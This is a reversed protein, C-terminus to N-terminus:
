DIKHIPKYGLDRNDPINEVNIRKSIPKLHCVEQFGDNRFEYLSRDKFEEESWRFKDASDTKDANKAIYSKGDIRVIEWSEWPNKTFESIKKDLLKVSDSAYSATDAVRLWILTSGCGAGSDHRLKLIKETKGDRDIDVTYIKEIVDYKPVDKEIYDAAKQGDEPKDGPLDFEDNAFKECVSARNWETVRWGDLRNSFRCLIYSGQDTVARLDSNIDNTILTFPFSSKLIKDHRGMGYGNDSNNLVQMFELEPQEDDSIRAIGSSQCSGGNSRVLFKESKSQDKTLPPSYCVAKTLVPTKNWHMEYFECANMDASKVQQYSQPHEEFQQCLQASVKKINALDDSIKKKTNEYWTSKEHNQSEIEKSHPEEGYAGSSLCLIFLLFGFFYNRLNM